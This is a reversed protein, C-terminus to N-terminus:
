AVRLRSRTMEHRTIRNDPLRFLLDDALQNCCAKHVAICSSLDDHEGIMYGYLVAADNTLDGRAALYNMALRAKVDGCWRKGAEIRSISSSGGEQYGMASAIEAQGVEGLLRLRRFRRGREPASISPIMLLEPATAV